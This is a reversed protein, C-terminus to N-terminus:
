PLRLEPRVGVTACTRAQTATYVKPVTVFRATDHHQALLTPDFVCPLTNASLTGCAM